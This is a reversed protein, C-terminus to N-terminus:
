EEVIFTIGNVEMWDCKYGDSITLSAGPALYYQFMTKIEENCKLEDLFEQTCSCRVDKVNGFTYRAASHKVDDLHKLLPKSNLKFSEQPINLTLWPQKKQRNM